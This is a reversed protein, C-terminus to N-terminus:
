SRLRKYWNKIKQNFSKKRKHDEVEGFLFGYPKLPEIHDCVIKFMALLPIALFVGPIGWVLEGVVLAIITFLPNIKVSPGVIIPELVWGQIFQVLSYTGVIGVLMPVSAGQVAAVLVTITTGTINGIFPVIELLGCLFAFFLANEIGILSFGIGYMIWLCVIMKSLGLLYQQSVNTVSLVVNEMEEKKAPPVIRILFSKIHERYYLFFLVYVLILIFSTFIYPLSGMIGKAINAVIPQQGNLVKVQKEISLNTHDYIYQEINGVTQIARQKILEFDKALEFIQWYILAFIASIIFILIILCVSAALAKSLKKSELRKCLPLFLTALLLGIALPIFFSKSFYLITLVIVFILTTRLIPTSGNLDFYKKTDSM